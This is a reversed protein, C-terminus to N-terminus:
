IKRTYLLAFHLFSFVVHKLLKHYRLIEDWSKCKIIPYKDNKLEIRALKYCVITSTSIIKISSNEPDYGNQKVRSVQSTNIDYAFCSTIIYTNSMSILYLYLSFLM